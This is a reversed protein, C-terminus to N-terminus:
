SSIQNINSVARYPNIWAHIELARKHCETIAFALPDWLPFPALGQVGTLDSSWPEINSAYMADCQSRIQMFVTNIGAEKYSNLISILAQQQQQPNQSNDPWDINYFTTLWAGRLERKPPQSHSLLSIFLLVFFFSLRM